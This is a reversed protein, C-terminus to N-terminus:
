YCTSLTKAPGKKSLLLNKRVSHCWALFRAEWIQTAYTKLCSFCLFCILIFTVQTRKVASNSPMCKLIFPTSMQPYISSSKYNYTPTHM